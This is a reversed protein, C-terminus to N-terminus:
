ADAGMSPETKDRLDELRKCTDGAYLQARLQMPTRYMPLDIHERKRLVFWASAHVYKSYIGYFIEYEKEVGVEKAMQSLSPRDPKLSKGHKRMTNRIQEIHADIVKINNPDTKDDALKKLSKYISIEDSGIQAAFDDLHQTSSLSYRFVINIEFISRCINATIEIPEEFFRGLLDLQGATAEAIAPFVRCGIDLDMRHYLEKGVSRLRESQRELNVRFNENEGFQTKDRLQM